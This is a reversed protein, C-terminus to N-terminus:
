ASTISVTLKPALTMFVIEWETDAYSYDASSAQLTSLTFPESQM